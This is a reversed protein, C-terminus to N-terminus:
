GKFFQFLGFVIEFLILIVIITELRLSKETDILDTLATATDGIVELKANLTEVRERIEYEDELRQYLRDLDPRDWLVDPKELAAVRGAVRAKALLAEGILKLMARRGAPARGQEALPRMFPEVADFVKAVQREDKDLAASKALIDAVVLLHEPAFSKLAIVGESTVQDAGEPALRVRIMEDERAPSPDVVRPGLGRLVEDEELPSLGILIVAGHRYLAVFGKDGAKFALPATAYVDARELGATNIREGVILARGTLTAGALTAGVPVPANL